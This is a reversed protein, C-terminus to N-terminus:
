EYKLSKVPDISAAKLSQYAITFSAIIVALVTSLIFIWFSIDIRYAFDNLWKNMIYYAVLWSIVSAILVLKIFEKSVQLIIRLISAGLVKRIGIEKTRSEISFSALGFLGLCAIFIALFATYKFIRGTEAETKYLEDLDDDFFSLEFPRYPDFKRWKDRLYGITEKLNNPKVRITYYSFFKPFYHIILPAIKKHLSSFNFDKVVGIVKGQGYSGYDIQKGIANEPHGWNFTKVASENIIYGSKLESLFKESFKRGAVMEIKYTDMFDPGAKISRMYVEQNEAAGEWIVATNEWAGGSSFDSVCVSIINPNKLFEEKVARYNTRLSNKYIPINILHEKDFGLDKNKMYSLQNYIIITGIILVISVVFQLVILICKLMNGKPLAKREGRLVKVPQFSSVFLAPYVGSLIGTVLTIIVLYLVFIWNKLFNIELKYNTISNFIPLIMQVIFVSVIVAMVTFMISEGLFQKVLDAKSAGVVKRIGVEKTRKISKAVSINVYNICAVLLIILAIATFFYVYKIDSTIEFGIFLEPHFHINKLPFYKLIEDQGLIGKYKMMIGKTKNELELPSYDKPLLVYTAFNSAKWNEFYNYGYLEDLCDFSGIIDFKFHSNRPVNEAVGTIKMEYTKETGSWFWSQGKSLTLVKGLPNQRGFYKEAMKETIVISYPDGLANEPNGKLLPFTFVEFISPDALLFNEEAFFKDNYRFYCKFRDSLKDIRVTNLIEPYENKLVEGLKAPTGSYLRREGESEKEYIVRFIRNGNSHFNDFSLENQIYLFVLTCCGLGFSLGFINIFSYIRHRKISRFTTLFYNKLM